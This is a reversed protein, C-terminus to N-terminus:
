KNVNNVALVLWNELELGSMKEVHGDIGYVDGDKFLIANKCNYSLRVYSSSGVAANRIMRVYDQMENYAANKAGNRRFFDLFGNYESYYREFFKKHGCAHISGDAWKTKIYEGLNYSILRNGNGTYSLKRIEGESKEPVKWTQWKDERILNVAEDFLAQQQSDLKM